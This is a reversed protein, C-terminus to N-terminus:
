SITAPIIKISDMNKYKEPQLISDKIVDANGERNKLTQGFPHQQV